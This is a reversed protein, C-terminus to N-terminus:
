KMFLSTVMDELSEQSRDIGPYASNDVLVAMADQEIYIRRTGVPVLYADYDDGKKSTLVFGLELDKMGSATFEASFVLSATYSIGTGSYEGDMETIISFFDDYGGIYASGDATDYGNTYQFNVDNGDQNYPNLYYTLNQPYDGNDDFTCDLENAYYVKGSSAARSSGGSYAATVDPPDEGDYVSLGADELDDLYEDSIYDSRGGSSGSDDDCGMFLLGALVMMLLCSKKIM